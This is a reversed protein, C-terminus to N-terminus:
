EDKDTASINQYDKVFLHGEDDRGFLSDMFDTSLHVEEVEVYIKDINIKVGIFSRCAEVFDEANQRPNHQKYSQEFTNSTGVGRFEKIMLLTPNQQFYLVYLYKMKMIDRETYGHIDQIVGLNDIDLGNYIINIRGKFQEAQKIRVQYQALSESEKLRPFMSEQISSIKNAAGHQSMGKQMFWQMLQIDMVSQSNPHKMNQIIKWIINAVGYNGRRKIIEMGPGVYIYDEPSMFWITYRDEKLLRPIRKWDSPFMQQDYEGYINDRKCHLLITPMNPFDDLIMDLREQLAENPYMNFIHLFKQPELPIQLGIERNLDILIQESYKNIIKM